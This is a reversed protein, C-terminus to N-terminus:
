FILLSLVMSGFLWNWTSRFDSVKVVKKALEASSLNVINKKNEELIAKSM